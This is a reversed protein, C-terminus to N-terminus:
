SKEHGLENMKEIIGELDDVRDGWNKWLEGLELVKADNEKQITGLEEELAEKHKLKLKYAHYGIFEGPLIRKKKERGEVTTIHQTKAGAIASLASQKDAKDAEEFKAKEEDVSAICAEFKELLAYVDHQKLIDDLSAETVENVKDIKGLLLKVLTDIGSTDEDSAFFAAVDGYAAAIAAPADNSIRSRSQTLSKALASLLLSSRAANNNATAM